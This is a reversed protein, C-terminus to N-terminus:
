PLLLKDIKKNTEYHEINTIFSANESAISWAKIYEKMFYAGMIFVSLLVICLIMFSLAPNIDKQWWGCGNLNGGELQRKFYSSRSSHKNSNENLM